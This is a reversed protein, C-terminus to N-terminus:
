YPLFEIRDNWEEFESAAWILLLSDVVSRTSHKQPALFLGPMFQGQGIRQEAFAGLTNVDHSVILLRHSAALELLEPDDFGGCGAEVATQFEIAPELSRVALVIELRLDEDALFRPRTV